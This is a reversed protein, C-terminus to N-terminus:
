DAKKNAQTLCITDEPSEVECNSTEKLKQAPICITTYESIKEIYKSYHIEVREESDDLSCPPIPSNPTPLPLAPHAGEESSSSSFVTFSRPSNSSSNHPSIESISSLDGGSTAYQDEEAAM